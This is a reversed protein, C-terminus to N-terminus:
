FISGDPYWYFEEDIKPSFNFIQAGQAIKLPESIQRITHRPGTKKPSGV